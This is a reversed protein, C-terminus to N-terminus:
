SKLFYLGKCICKVTKVDESVVKKTDQPKQSVSFSTFLIVTTNM